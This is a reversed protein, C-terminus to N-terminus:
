RTFNKYDDKISYKYPIFEPQFRQITGNEDVHATVIWGGMTVSIGKGRLFPTQSQFCGALMSHVNRYLFYGQKHYNGVVLIDPKADSEMAEVMKQVKHSLAQTIGDWPHRLEMTCNPTLNVVAYDKGLYIMDSRDKAIAAGIDYGVHKYLSADHNGTIFYTIIGPRCPYNKVVDERQGDASSDYLEYEHGPRMKLGDTIDGAHYVSTINERECLDYFDHLYTNQMYKSGFHTDSVIAFKIVKLGDWKVTYQEPEQNQIAVRRTEVVPTKKKKRCKHLYIAIRNYMNELGCEDEVMSVVTRFKHGQASYELAKEQWTKM